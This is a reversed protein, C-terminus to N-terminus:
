EIKVMTGTSGLEAYCSFMKKLPKQVSSRERERKMQGGRGEIIRSGVRGGM